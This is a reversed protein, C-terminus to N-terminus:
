NSDTQVTSHTSHTIVSRLQQNAKQYKMEENEKTKEPTFM